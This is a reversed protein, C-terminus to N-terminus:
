KAYTHYVGFPFNGIHILNKLIQIFNFTHVSSNSFEIQAFYILIILFFFLFFINKMNSYFNSIKFKRFEYLTKIKDILVKEKFKQLEKIKEDRTKVRHVQRTIGIM